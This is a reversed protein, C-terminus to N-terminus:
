PPLPELEEDEFQALWLEEGHPDVSEVTYVLKGDGTDVSVVTGIDGLAPSRAVAESEHVQWRKPVLVARVRVRQGESFSM